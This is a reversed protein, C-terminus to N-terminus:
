GLKTTADVVNVVHGVEQNLTVIVLALIHDDQGVVLLVRHHVRGLGVHDASHLPQNLISSWVIREEKM